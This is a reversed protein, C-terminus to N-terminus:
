LGYGITPNEGAMRKLACSVLASNFFVIVFYNVAYFAFLVVYFLPNQPMEGRQEFFQHFWPTKYLPLAFSALVLLCAAGSMVPFLVLEKDQRLVSFSQKALEWGTAIRAFM